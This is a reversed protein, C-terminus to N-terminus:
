LTLSRKSVNSPCNRDSNLAMISSVRPYRSSLRSFLSSSCRWSTLRKDASFRRNFAATSFHLSYIPFASLPALDAMTSILFVKASMVARCGAALVLIGFKTPLEMYPGDSADFSVRRSRTASAPSCCSASCLLCSRLRERGVIAGM